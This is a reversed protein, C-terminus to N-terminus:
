HKVVRGDAYFSYSAIGVKSVKTTPTFNIGMSISADGTSSGGISVTYSIECSKTMHGIAGYSKVLYLSNAGPAADIQLKVNIVGQKAWILFTGDAEEPIIKQLEIDASVNNFENSESDSQLTLPTQTHLKNTVASYYNLYGSQSIPSVSVSHGQTDVAAWILAAKDDLSQLPMASWGWSYGYYVISESASMLTMKGTCQAAARLIESTATIPEGNYEKLIRIQEDTYGLGKLEDQGLKARELFADEFSFSRIEDIESETYGSEMLEADSHSIVNQYLEFESYSTEEVVVEEATDMEGAFAAPCIGVVLALVLLLSIMKKKM